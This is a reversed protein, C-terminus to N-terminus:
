GDAESSVFRFNGDFESPLTNRKMVDVEINDWTTMTKAGTERKALADSSESDSTRTTALSDPSSATTQTLPLDAMTSSSTTGTPDSPPATPPASQAGHNTVSADTPATATAFGRKANSTTTAASLLIVRATKQFELTRSSAAVKSVAHQLHRAPHAM